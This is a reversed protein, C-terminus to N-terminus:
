SPPPLLGISPQTIRNWGCSGAGHGVAVGEGPVGGGDAAVGASGTLARAGNAAAAGGAAGGRELGPVREARQTTWTMKGSPGPVANM